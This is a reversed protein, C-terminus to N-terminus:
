RIPSSVGSYCYQSSWEDQDEINYSAYPSSEVNKFQLLDTGELSDFITSEERNSCLNAYM